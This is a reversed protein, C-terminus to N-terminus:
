EPKDLWGRLKNLSYIDHKKESTFFLEEYWGHTGLSQLRQGFPKTSGFDILIPQKDKIMINHPNIDNHALGLGPFHDVASAISEMVKFKDLEQFKPTAACQALTEPLKELLIATIRGRKVRCGHYSIIDPHPFKSLQEMVLTEDLIARPIYDTGKM